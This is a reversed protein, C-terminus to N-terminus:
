MLERLKSPRRPADLDELMENFTAEPIVVHAEIRPPALVAPRMEAPSSGSYARLKLTVTGAEKSLDDVVADSLQDQVEGLPITTDGIQMAM